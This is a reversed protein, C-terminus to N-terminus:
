EQFPNDSKTDYSKKIMEIVKFVCIKARHYEICDSVPIDTRNSLIGLELIVDELTVQKDTQLIEDISVDLAEAIKSLTTVAGNGAGREIKSIYSVDIKTKEALGQLTIGLEKRRERIQNGVNALIDNCAM